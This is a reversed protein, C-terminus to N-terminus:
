RRRPRLAQGARWACAGFAVSAGVSAIIVGAALLADGQPTLRLGLAVGVAGLAALWFAKFVNRTLDNSM